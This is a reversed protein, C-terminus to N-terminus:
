FFAQRINSLPLHADSMQMKREYRKKGVVALEHLVRGPSFVVVALCKMKQETIEGPETMGLRLRATQKRGLM